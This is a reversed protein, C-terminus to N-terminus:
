AILPVLAPAEVSGKMPGDALLWVPRRGPAWRRRVWAGKLSLARRAVLDMLALKFACVAPVNRGLGYRLLYSEPATLEWREYPLPPGRLTVPTAGARGCARRPGDVGVSTEPGLGAIRTPAGDRGGRPSSRQRSEVSM